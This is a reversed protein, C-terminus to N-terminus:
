ETKKKKRSLPNPGKTKKRKGMCISQNYYDKEKKIKDKQKETLHWEMKMERMQNLEKRVEHSMGINSVRMAEAKRKTADSISRITVQTNNLYIIPVAPIEDVKPHLNGDQTAILYKRKNSKGIIIGYVL